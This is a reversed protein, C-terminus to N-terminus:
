HAAAAAAPEKLFSLAEWPVLSQTAGTAPGRVRNYENIAEDLRRGFSSSLKTWSKANLRCLLFCDNFHVAFSVVCRETKM